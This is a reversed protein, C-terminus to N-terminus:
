GDTATSLTIDFRVVGQKPFSLQITDKDRRYFDQKERAWGLATLTNDYFSRVNSTSQTTKAEFILIQGAPTDFSFDDAEPLTLGDMLPIDDTGPLFDARVGMGTILTILLALIYLFIRM